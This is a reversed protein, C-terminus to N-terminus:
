EHAEDAIRRCEEVWKVQASVNHLKSMIASPAPEDTADAKSSSEEQSDGFDVKRRKQAGDRDSTFDVVSDRPRKLNTSADTGNSQEHPFRGPAAAKDIKVKLNSPEIGDENFLSIVYAERGEVRLTIEGQIFVKSKAQPELVGMLDVLMIKISRGASVVLQPDQENRKAVVPTSESVASNSKDGPTGYEDPAPSSASSTPSAETEQM